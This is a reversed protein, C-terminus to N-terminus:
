GAIRRGWGHSEAKRVADSPKEVLEPVLNDAIVRNAAEDAFPNARHERGSSIGVATGNFHLASRRRLNSKTTATVRGQERDSCM